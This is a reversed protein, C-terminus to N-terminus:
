ILADLPNLLFRRAPPGSSMHSISYSKSSPTPGSPVRLNLGPSELRPRARGHTCRM